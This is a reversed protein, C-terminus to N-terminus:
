GLRERQNRGRTPWVPLLACIVWMYDPRRTQLCYQPVLVYVALKGAAVAAAAAAASDPASGRVGWFAVIYVYKSHKKLRKVRAYVSLCWSPGLSPGM